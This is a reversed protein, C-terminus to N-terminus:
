MSMKNATNFDAKPKQNANNVKSFAVGDNLKLKTLKPNTVVTLENLKVFSFKELSVVARNVNNKVCNRRGPAKNAERGARERDRERMKVKKPSASIDVSRRLTPTSHDCQAVKCYNCKQLMEVLDVNFIRQHGIYPHIM